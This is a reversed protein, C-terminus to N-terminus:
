HEERGEVGPVPPQLASPAAYARAAGHEYVLEGGKAGVQVATVVILLTGATAVWRAAAGVSGGLLGVGAVLAVVGAFLLLREAAEEHDHLAVDTVYAEVREEEAEGTEIAVWASGTLLLALGVPFAWARRLLVGRRIAWLASAASIPLLVAFVLPFHVV